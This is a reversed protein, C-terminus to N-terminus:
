PLAVLARVLHHSFNSTCENLYLVVNHRVSPRVSLCVSLVPLIIDHQAHQAHERSLIWVICNCVVASIDANTNVINVNVQKNCAIDRMKIHNAM